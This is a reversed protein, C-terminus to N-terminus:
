LTVKRWKGNEDKAVWGHKPDKIAGPFAKKIDADTTASPSSSSGRKARGEQIISRFDAETMGTAQELVAANTGEYPITRSPLAKFYQEETITESVGDRDRVRREEGTTPDVITKYTIKKGSKDTVVAGARPDAGVKGSIYLNGNDDEFVAEPHMTLSGVESSGATVDVFGIPPMFTGAGSTKKSLRVQDYEGSFGAGEVAGRGYSASPGTKQSGDGGGDARPSWTSTKRELEDNFVKSFTEYAEEPTIKGGSSDSYEQAFVRLSPEFEKKALDQLAYRGGGVPVAKGLEQAVSQVMNPLSKMFENMYTAASVLGELDRRMSRFEGPDVGKAPVGNENQASLFNELAKRTEPDVKQKGAVVDAYLDAYQKFEYQNATGVDSIERSKQLWLQNEQTGPTSIRKWAEEEDGGYAATIDAALKNLVSMGYKGFAPQFPDAAKGIGGYPDFKEKVKQQAQLNAAERKALDDGRSALAVFPLKMEAVPVMGTDFGYKQVQGQGFGEAGPNWSYQAPNVKIQESKSYGPLTFADPTPAGQTFAGQDNPAVVPPAGTTSTSLNPTGLALDTEPGGTM